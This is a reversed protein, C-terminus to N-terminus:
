LTASSYETPIYISISKSCAMSHRSSSSPNPSASSPVTPEKHGHTHSSSLSLSHWRRVRGPHAPGAVANRRSLSHQRRVSLGDQPNCPLHSKHVIPPTLPSIRRRLRTNRPHPPTRPRRRHHQPHLHLCKLASPGLVPQPSQEYKRSVLLAPM